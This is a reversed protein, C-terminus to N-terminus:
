GRIARIVRIRVPPVSKSLLGRLIPLKRETYEGHEERGGTFSGQFQNEDTFDTYDTTLFHRGGGDVQVAVEALAGAM